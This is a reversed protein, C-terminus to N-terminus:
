RAGPSAVDPAVPGVVYAATWAARLLPHNALRARYALDGLPPGAEAWEHAALSGGVALVLRGTRPERVVLYMEDVLGTAIELVRGGARDEHVDVVLARADGRSPTLRAELDALRAPMEALAQAQEAELPEDNAERLAVALCARLLDLAIAPISGPAPPALAGTAVLGRAAQEVLAVLRAIADPHPEVFGLAPATRPAAPTATAAAKPTPLRSFPVADHRLTAWGGLAVEVKRRRWAWTSAAPLAGDATSAGVYAALADLGTWLLSGHRDPELPRRAILAALVTDYEPPEDPEVERVITRAESAGLWTALDLGGPLRRASLAPVVFAQLVDGDPSASGGLVRVQEGPAGDVIRARRGLMASRRVREVRRVNQIGEATLVDVNAAKAVALLERPTLDDSAGRMLALPRVIADYAEAATADVDPALLRAVLLAARTRTRAEYVDGAGGEGDMRSALALPAAGLWAAARYARLQPDAAGLAGRPALDGFDVPLRLAASERVAPAAPPSLAVRVDAAIADALEAPPQWTGEALARAVGVLGRAADYAVDLDGNVKASEADLRGGLRAVLAGLAPAMTKAEADALMRDLAVHALQVMVDMTVVFPVRADRLGLYLEGMRARGAGTTVAFGTKRVRDRLAEPAKMWRTAAGEPRAFQDDALPLDSPTLVVSVNAAVPQYYTGEAASARPPTPPPAAASVPPKAPPRPAAPPTCAAVVGLALALRRAAPALKTTRVTVHYGLSARPGRRRGGKRMFREGGGFDTM